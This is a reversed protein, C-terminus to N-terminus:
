FLCFFAVDDDDDLFVHLLISIYKMFEIEMEVICIMFLFFLCCVAYM